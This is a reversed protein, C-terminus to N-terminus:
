LFDEELEAVVNQVVSLNEDHVVGVRQGLLEAGTTFKVETELIVHAHLARVELGDACGYLEPHAVLCFQHLENHWERALVIHFIGQSCRSSGETCTHREMSAGVGQSCERAHEATMLNEPGEVAHGQYVVESVIRCLNGSADPAGLVKGIATDDSPELRVTKTGCAEQPIVQHFKDCLRKAGLIKIIVPVVVHHEETLNVISATGHSTVDTRAIQGIVQEELAALSDVDFVTVFTGLFHHFTGM